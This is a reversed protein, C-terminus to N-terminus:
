KKNDHKAEELAHRYGDKFDRSAGLSGDLISAKQLSKSVDDTRIDKEAQKKVM